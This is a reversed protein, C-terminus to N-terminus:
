SDVVGTERLRSGRSMELSFLAKKRPTPKAHQSTQVERASEENGTMVVM